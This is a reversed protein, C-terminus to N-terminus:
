ITYGDPRSKALADTAIAGNAGAKNEVVVPKGALKSLRDSYYRVVIDAGSGASFNCISRIERIPYDQASAPAALIGLFLILTKLVMFLMDRLTAMRPPARM